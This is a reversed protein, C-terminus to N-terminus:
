GQRRCPYETEDKLVSNLFSGVSKAGEWLNVTESTVGFYDYQSGGKFTVRVVSRAEDYHAGEVNSSARLEIQTWEPGM